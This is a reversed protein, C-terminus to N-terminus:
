KLVNIVDRKIIELFKADSFDRIHDDMRKLVVVNKLVTSGVAVQQWLSYQDMNTTKSGDKVDQLARFLARLTQGCQTGVGKEFHGRLVDALTQNPTTPECLSIVTCTLSEASPLEPDTGCFDFSEYNDYDNQIKTGIEKAFKKIGDDGGQLRANVFRIFINDAINIRYRNIDGLPVADISEMRMKTATLIVNLFGVIILSVIIVFLANVIQTTWPGPENAYVQTLLIGAPVVFCMITIMVGRFQKARKRQRKVYADAERVITGFKAVPPAISEMLLAVREFTVNGRVSLEALHKLNVDSFQNVLLDQVDRLAVLARSHISM